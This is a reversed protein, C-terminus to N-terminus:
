FGMARAARAALSGRGVLDLFTAAGMVMGVAMDLGSSHGRGLVDELGDLFAEGEGEYLSSVVREVEEDVLGQQMYSLLRSSAWSTRKEARGVDVLLMKEGVLAAGPDYLCLFGALFDDFSPTFGFGLGLMEYSKELFGNGDFPRGSLFCSRFFAAYEPFARGRGDLISERLNMVGVMSCAAPIRSAVPLASRPDLGDATFSGHFTPCALGLELGGLHLADGEDLAEDGIRLTSEFSPGRGALNVTVPSRVGKRTVTVLESSSTRLYVSNPFLHAV